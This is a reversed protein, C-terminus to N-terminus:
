SHAQQPSGGGSGQDAGAVAFGIGERVPASADINQARADPVVMFLGALAAEALLLLLDPLRLKARRGCAGAREDRDSGAFRLESVLMKRV